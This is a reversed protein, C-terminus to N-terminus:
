LFSDYEIGELQSGKIAQGGDPGTLARITTDQICNVPAWQNAIICWRNKDATLKLIEMHKNKSVGM